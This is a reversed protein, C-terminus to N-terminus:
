ESTPLYEIYPISVSDREGCVMGPFPPCRRGPSIRAVVMENAASCIDGGPVCSADLVRGAFTEQNLLMPSERPLGIAARNNETM